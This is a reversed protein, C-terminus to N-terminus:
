KGIDIYQFFKNSIDYEYNDSYFLAKGTRTDLHLMNGNILSGSVYSIGDKEVDKLYYTKDMGEMFIKGIETLEKYSLSKSKEERKYNELNYYKINNKGDVIYRISVESNNIRQYFIREEINDDETYFEDTLDLDEPLWKSNFENIAKIQSKYLNDDVRILKIPYKNTEVLLNIVPESSNSWKDEVLYIEYLKDKLDLHEQYYEENLIYNGYKEYRNNILPVINTSYTDGFYIKEEFEKNDKKYKIKMYSKEQNERDFYLEEIKGIVISPEVRKSNEINEVFNYKIEENKISITNKNDLLKITEVIKDGEEKYERDLSLRLKNSSDKIIYDFYGDERELKYDYFLILEFYGIFKNNRNYLNFRFNSNNDYGITWDKPIEGTFFPSGLKKYDENVLDIKSKSSIRAYREIKDIDKLMNEMVELGSDSIIGRSLSLNNFYYTYNSNYGMLKINEYHLISNKLDDEKYLNGALRNVSFLVGESYDKDREEEELELFVEKNFFILQNENEVIKYKNKWNSPILLEIGFDENKYEIYNEGFIDEIAYGQNEKDDIKEKCSVLFTLSLIIVLFTIGIFSSNKKM